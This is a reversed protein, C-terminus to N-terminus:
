FNRLILLLLSREVIRLQLTRCQEQCDLEEFVHTICNAYFSNESKITYTVSIYRYIAYLVVIKTKTAYKELGEYEKLLESIYRDGRILEDAMKRCNGMSGTKKIDEDLHVDIISCIAQYLSVAGEIPLMETKKLWEMRCPLEELDVDYCFTFVKVKGDIFLKRIIDLEVLAETDTGLYQTLVILVSGEGELIDQLEAYDSELFYIDENCPVSLGWNEMYYIVAETHTEKRNFSHCIYM